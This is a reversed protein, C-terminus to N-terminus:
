KPVFTHLVIAQKSTFGNAVFNDSDHLNRSNWYIVSGQAWRYIGQVTLANILDANDNHSLHCQFINCATRPHDKNTQTYVHAMDQNSDSVQDFIVTHTKDVWAPNYDVSYPILISLAPKRDAFIDCHYADTHIGWPKTENLLMGFVLKLHQGFLDKIRSFIIKQFWFNYINNEDVGHCDNHMIKLSPVNALTNTWKQIEEFEFVDFLQGGVPDLHQLM